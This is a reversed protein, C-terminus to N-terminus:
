PGKPRVRATPQAVMPDDPWYHKPYRGKLEKKVESYTREWFGALDQTVQIPRQAPSLLHLMVPIAGKCVKPTETLGFMEQLKVALVPPEGPTYHLRKNSGSPVRIHSPALDEVRQLQEWEMGSKLIALMDLKRLHDRRGMGEVWPGLWNELDDLLATDSLDPWSAEPQWGRLFEMRAQWERAGDSWPLCELGMARVGELMASRVAEPDIEKTPRQSLVLAGLREEERTEVASSNSDWRVESLWQIREAQVQRLEDLGLAAALYVRGEKRGADLHAAVLFENGDLLDGEPLQAGRGSSLRYGGRGGRYRAIRDPYASALLAGASLPEESGAEIGEAQRQWQKSAQMVRRCGGPDAGLRAVGKAGRARYHAMLELRQELDVPQREGPVRKLVDRESLLAALDAAMESQGHQRGLLLMHALRPHLGLGAMQKGQRTIRGGEDVVELAQLLERAQAYAGVPPPTLWQLEKPGAVGWQALELCLPALDAEAIEPPLHDQLAAQVSRDWLRYCVGPGLRGARGARQDAAARSVRITELRTLGSNPDFRPRRSWGSDIVTTIGEITLSTEAISTALVIRRRGEPGPLIARDQEERSLDGYLPCLDVEACEPREQLSKLVARIEGVGPLFVLLDGQEQRVAQLVGGTVIDNLRAQPDSGLYHTEVPHSQGDGKVVPADGLLGSVAATDLTASMVLLRLEPRLNEIVDLCLALALDAHISREHFEDFIVLGVGELEPDSQLRRTLIGETVVEIRTRASVKHDFRVRYGVTEGVKEGLLDAMRRASARAALRRPELMLIRHDKLWPQDLLALPVATTKGSGPPASLVARGGSVLEKSLGPLIPLIPLDQLRKELQSSIM